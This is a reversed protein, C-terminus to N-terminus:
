YAVEDGNPLEALVNNVIGQIDEETFYDVGKVPTKGDKGNAGAKGEAGDKVEATTTGNIDTITIVTGNEAREVTAIPSLGSVEKTEEFGMEFTKNANDFSLENIM